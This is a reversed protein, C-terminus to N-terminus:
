IPRETRGGARHEPFLRHCGPKAGNPHHRLIVTPYDNVEENNPKELEPNGIIEKVNDKPGKHAIISKTLKWCTILMEEFLYDDEITISVYKYYDEFEAYNVKKIKASRFFNHHSQFTEIFSSYFAEESM